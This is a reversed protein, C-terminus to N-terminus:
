NVVGEGCASACSVLKSQGEIGNGRAGETRITLITDVVEVTSVAGYDMPGPDVEEDLESEGGVGARNRKGIGEEDGSVGSVVETQVRGL